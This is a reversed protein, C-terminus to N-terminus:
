SKKFLISLQLEKKTKLPIVWAYKSFIDMVYYFVFEM